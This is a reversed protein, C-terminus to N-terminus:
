EGDDLSTSRLRAERPHTAFWAMAHEVAAILPQREALWKTCYEDLELRGSTRAVERVLKVIDVGHRMGLLSARYSREADMMRDSVLERANSFLEGVARGVRGSSLNEVWAMTDLEGLVRAAHESVARLAFAPATGELREAERAPHRKASRETQNFEEWLTALLSTLEEPSPRQSAAEDSTTAHMEKM